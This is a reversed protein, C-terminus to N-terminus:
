ISLQRNKYDFYIESISDRLMIRKNQKFIATLRIEIIIMWMVLLVFQTILQIWLLKKLNSAPQKIIVENFFM